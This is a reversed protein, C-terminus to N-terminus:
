GLPDIYLSKFSCTYLEILIGFRLICINHIKVLYSIALLKLQLVPQILRSIALRKLKLVPQILRSFRLFPLTHAQLITYGFM